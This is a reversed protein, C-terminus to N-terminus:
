PQYAETFLCYSKFQPSVSLLLPIFGAGLCIAEFNGFGFEIEWVLIDLCLELVNIIV